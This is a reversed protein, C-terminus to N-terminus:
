DSDGDSVIVALPEGAVVVQGAEVHLRRVVGDRHASVHNEMKMAELVVVVDGASVADGEAVATKVITGQMPAALVESGSAHHRHGAAGGRQRRRRRGPNDSRGDPDFLAVQLRKGDVEVTYTRSPGAPESAATAPAAPPIESLDWEQEVSITSVRGAVFDPHRLAVRHFDLTTPVGEVVFEDLARLLRARAEERDAGYAIVKALLSDYHGPVDWGAAAGSDVRVGPGGPEQWTTIRGTTPVFGAAVDEANIRVEIAHGHRALDQQLFPLPEGAAIRLQWCALDLGTVLETVPHEVQLRTNMELFYFRGDEYLFECTGAGVYGVEHCVSVAAEDMAKRVADDLGPAPAEEILKQHRRQTSCDREGLSLVTGHADALVQIELHRPRTLYREVYVEDRGFSAQSERQAAELAAALDSDDYVVKLGRGGGGYAAKIAVPYGHEAAFAAVVEPDRTPELTGPVVPSGAAEATRRASLKDGMREIAEPPPGVWVLGADLVARAFDANEALFGYGPHIAEAGARHAVELIREISLYSEAPAAPGLLYADDAARLWPADRDAESYVAVGRLGLDHCARLIRLAIEGRNAVLVSGFPASPTTM